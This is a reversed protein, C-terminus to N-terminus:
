GETGGNEAAGDSAKESVAGSAEPSAAATDDAPEGSGEPLGDAETDVYQAERIGAQKRRRKAAAFLIMGAVASCFAVVQSVRLGTGAIMLSDTRLGEILFRGTGYTIMYLLMIEGDFSQKKKKMYRIIFLLSFLNWCSEYLFTPHVQIYETGGDTIVHSLVDENLMSASVLEKKLRMAFLTDTYGGFAECNFFNGWRGMIQGLLLGPILNDLMQLANQKRVRCFIFLAIIVGIVGGYIALGGERTNFIKAPNALYYDLNFLVYYLRSGAVGAIVIWIFFDWYTEADLGKAKVNKEVMLMALLMGAGIIMGYFMIDVGFVTIHNRLTQIVIGLHPFIVDAGNYTM